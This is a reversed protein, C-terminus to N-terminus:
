IFFTMYGDTGFKIEPSYIQSAARLEFAPLSPPTTRPPSIPTGSGRAGPLMQMTQAVVAVGPVQHFSFNSATQLLGGPAKRKGKRACRLRKAQHHQMPAREEKNSVQVQLRIEFSPGISGMARSSRRCSTAAHDLGGQPGTLTPSTWRRGRRHTPRRNRRRQRLQLQGERIRQKRARPQSRQKRQRPRM